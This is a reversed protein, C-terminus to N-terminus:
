TLYSKGIDFLVKVTISAQLAKNAKTLRTNSAVLESLVNQNTSATAALADFYKGLVEDQL